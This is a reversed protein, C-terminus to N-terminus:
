PLPTPGSPTPPATPPHTNPGTRRCSRLREDLMRTLSPETSLVLPAQAAVRILQDAELHDAAVAASRHPVPRRAATEAGPQRPRAAFQGGTSRGSVPLDVALSGAASPGHLDADLFNAASPVASSTVSRDACAVSRPVGPVTTSRARGPGVADTRLDSV